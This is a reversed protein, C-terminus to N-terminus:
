APILFQYPNKYLERHEAETFARDWIMVAHYYCDTQNFVSGCASSDVTLTGIHLYHASNTLDPGATNTSDILKTGNQFVYQQNGNGYISSFSILQKNLTTVDTGQNTSSRGGLFIDMLGDSGWYCRFYSISNAGDIHVLGSNGDKEKPSAIVAITFDLSPILRASPYLLRDATADIHVCPDGEDFAFAPANYTGSCPSTSMTKGSVVDKYTHNFLWCGTMKRGLPHSQDVTVKGKPKRGPILLEPMEFRPDPIVYSM